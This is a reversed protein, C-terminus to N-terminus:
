AGRLATTSSPPHNVLLTREPIRTSAAIWRMAEPFIALGFPAMTRGPGTVMVRSLWTALRMSRSLQSRLTRYYLDAGEGALYMKAALAASHLAMSM